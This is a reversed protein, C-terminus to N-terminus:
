RCNRFALAAMAAPLVVNGVVIATRSPKSLPHAIAGRAVPEALQGVSYGVGFVGLLRSGTRATSASGTLAVSTVAQAALFPLGPSLATGTGAFFDASPTRGTRIGFPSQPLSDRIAIRAGVLANAIYVTSTIGVQVRQRAITCQADVDRVLLVAIVPVVGRRLM